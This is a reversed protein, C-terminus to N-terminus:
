ILHGAEPTSINLGQEIEKLLGMMTFETTGIGFGGMALAIIALAVHRTGTTSPAPARTTTTM